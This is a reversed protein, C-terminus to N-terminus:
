KLIVLTSNCHFVDHIKGLILFVWHKFVSAFLVIAIIRGAVMGARWITQLLVGTFSVRKHRAAATRLAKTYAVM